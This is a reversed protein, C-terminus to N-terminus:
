PVALGRPGARSIDSGARMPNAPTSTAATAVPRSAPRATRWGLIALMLIPLMTHAAAARARVTASAAWLMPKALPNPGAVNRATWSDPRSSAGSHSAQPRASSVQGPSAALNPARRAQPASVTTPLTIRAM